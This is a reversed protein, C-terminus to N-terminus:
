IDCFHNEKWMFSLHVTGHATMIIVLFVRIKQLFVHNLSLGSPLRLPLKVANSHVFRLDVLAQLVSLLKHVLKKISIEVDIKPPMALLWNRKVSGM